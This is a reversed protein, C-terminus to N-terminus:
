ARYAQILEGIYQAYRDALDKHRIVLVNEANGMAHNSLNFSGTCV